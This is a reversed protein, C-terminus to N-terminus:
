GLRLAFPIAVALFISCSELALQLGLSSPLVSRLLAEVGDSARVKSVSGLRKSAPSSRM